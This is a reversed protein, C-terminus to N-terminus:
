ILKAFKCIQRRFESLHKVGEQLAQYIRDLHLHAYEHVLENRLRVLSVMRDALELEIVQHEKLVRFLEGSSQPVEWKEDTVVHGAMDICGQIAVQLNHILIDQLDDNKKLDELSVQGKQRIRDLARQLFSSQAQLVEQDVM